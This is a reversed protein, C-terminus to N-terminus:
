VQLTRSGIGLRLHVHFESVQVEVISRCKVENGGAQLASVEAATFKAMSVSKIRHSFERSCMGLCQWKEAWIKADRITIWLGSVEKCTTGSQM